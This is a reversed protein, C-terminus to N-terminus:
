IEIIIVKKHYKNPRKTYVQIFDSIKIAKKNLLSEHVYGETVFREKPKLEKEM